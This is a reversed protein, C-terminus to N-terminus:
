QIDDSKKNLIILAVAPGPTTITATEDRVYIRRTIEVSMNIVGSVNAPIIVVMENVIHSHGIHYGRLEPGNYSIAGRLVFRAYMDPVHGPRHQAGWPTITIKFPPITLMREYNRKNTINISISGNSINVTSNAQQTTYNKIVSAYIDGQLNEAFVEGHFYGESAEIRGKINANEAILNGQPDVKFKNNINLKGGTINAANIEQALISKADVQNVTLKGKVNAAQVELNAANIENATISNAAIKDGTITRAELKDGTITGHVILGGDIVQSVKVWASGNFFKSESFGASQSYQTASDWALLDGFENIFANRATADDWTAASGRNIDIHKSGRQGPKGDEGPQGDAGPKGDTGPKGDEGPKGDHGPQGDTGPKGDHGDTLVSLVQAVELGEVHKFYVTALQTATAPSIRVSIRPDVEFATVTFNNNATNLVARAKATLPASLSPRTFRATLVINNQNPLWSGSATKIWGPGNDSEIAASWIDAAPKTTINTITKNVSEGWPTCTQATITYSTEPELEDFTMVYGLGAFSDAGASQNTKRIWFKFRVDEPSAPAPIVEPRATATTASVETKISTPAAPNGVIISDSASDGATGNNSYPTVQYVHTVNSAIPGFEYGNARISDDAFILAEEGGEVKYLAVGYRAVAQGNTTPDNWTVSFKNGKLTPPNLTPAGIPANEPPLAPFEPGPIIDLDPSYVESSYGELDLKVAGEPDESVEVVRWARGTQGTASDAVTVVDGPELSWGIAGVEVEAEDLIRGKRATVAAEYIGQEITQIHKADDSEERKRGGDEKLWRSYIARGAETDQPYICDFEVEMKSGPKAPDDIMTEITIIQRNIRDTLVQGTITLGGMLDNETLAISTQEPKEVRFKLLGTYDSLYLRGSKTFDEIIDGFKDTSDFVFGTKLSTLTRTKVGHSRLNDYYNAADIVSQNDAKLGFSGAGVLDDNLYDLLQLALNQSYAKKNTRPDFLRRGKVPVVLDVKGTLWYQDRVYYNLLVTTLGRGAMDRFRAVEGADAHIFMWHLKPDNLIDCKAADAPTRVWAIWNGARWHGESANWKFGAINGDIKLNKIDVEEVDGVTLACIFNTWYRVKKTFAHGSTKKHYLRGVHVLEVEKEGYIIPLSPLEKKGNPNDTSYTLEDDDGQAARASETWRFIKDGPQHQQHFPDSVFYPRSTDISGLATDATLKIITEKIEDSEIEHATLLAVRVIFPSGIIRGFEDLIARHIEVPKNMYARASVEELFQRDAATFLLEIEDSGAGAKRTIGDCELLPNNSLYKFGGHNIDFAADTFYHIVNNNNQYADGLNIKFLNCSRVLPKKLAKLTESNLQIM